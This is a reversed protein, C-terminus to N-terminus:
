QGLETFREMNRIIMKKKNIQILGLKEFRRLTTTVTQRTSSILNAIEQHTLNLDFVVGQDTTVGHERAMKLLMGALRSNVEKFALNLLAENTNRLINGLIKVLNVAVAPNRILMERFNDSSTYWIEARELVIADAESHMSYVDGPQLITVTIEKGEPSLYSIKVSGSRVLYIYDGSLGSFKVYQKRDFYIRKFCSSLEKIDQESLNKFLKFESPM